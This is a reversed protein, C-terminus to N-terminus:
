PVKRSERRVQHLSLTHPVLRCVPPYFLEFTATGQQFIIVEVDSPWRPSSSSSGAVLVHRCKAKDMMLCNRSMPGQPDLPLYVGGAEFVGLMATLYFVDREGYVAVVDGPVVGHELLQHAIGSACNNLERYSMERSGDVVAITEPSERVQAHFLDIATMSMHQPKATENWLALEREDTCTLRRCHEVRDSEGNAIDSLVQLYYKSLSSIEEDPIGDANVDLSLEIAGTNWSVSFQATLFFYTQDSAQIDSVNIGSERVTQYPHFHVYNFLAEFIPRNSDRVIQAMPYRRHPYVDMEAAFVREVFEGISDGIVSLRLPIANLFLGVSHRGDRTEPRGNSMIGTVVDTEGTLLGVVVIHAALLVSKLPVKRTYALERLRESIDGPIGVNYRIHRPPCSARDAPWRPLRAFPAGSLLSQWYQRDGSSELSERELAVYDRFGHGEEQCPVPFNLVFAAYTSLVSAMVTAVSFGDLFPEVMTFQFSDPTVTHIYFRALPVQDWAPVSSRVDSLWSAFASSKPSLDMGPWPLIKVFTEVSPHVVQVPVSFGEMHFSTRLMACQETVHQIARRMASEDLAAEIRLSTVYAAYDEIHTSHYMLGMQLMTLPYADQTGTPLAAVDRSTIQDFASTSGNMPERSAAEGSFVKSGHPAAAELRQALEAVTKTEFIDLVSVNFGHERAKYSVEIARISDGGVDFFSEDRGFDSKGLVSIWIKRLVRETETWEASVVSVASESKTSLRALGARDVKGNPTRPLANLKVFHRPIMFEPLRERLWTRLDMEYVPADSVQRLPVVFAVLQDDSIVVCADTLDNRARLTAEIDGLEIRQGHVKVQDDFRGLFEIAGDERYRARDGTLYVLEHGLEDFNCEVFREATLEEHGLYGMGVAVGGIALEGVWGVPVLKRDSGVVYAHTNAIPRGIPVPGDEGDKCDWWTVDIAAESPGYLNFLGVAPILEQARNVLERSLTEGSCVIRRLTPIKVSDVTGSYLVARLMSPVLHLTTISERAVVDMLYEPDRQGGSRALVVTAGESLPWFVEWLAVDFGIPTKHLVREGWSLGFKDQMWALRNRFAKHSNIAGKPAGTSGSTYIVYAADEPKCRVVDTLRGAPTSLDELPLSALITQSDGNKLRVRGALDTLVVRPKSDDLIQKIRFDPYDTDIPVVVAGITMAALLATVMDASRRMFVAVIDGHDVGENLLQEALRTSAWLLERYTMTRISVDHGVDDSVIAVHDALKQAIGCIRDVVTAEMEYEKSTDNWVKSLLRREEPPIRPATDLPRRPENAVAEIFTSLGSLLRDVAASDLLDTSYEVAIDLVRDRHKVFLTFDLKAKVEDMSLTRVQLEPPLEVDPTMEYVVLVQFLPNRSVSHEAGSAKVIELFPLRAHDLNDAVAMHCTRLAESFSQGDVLETRLPLPNIFNGVTGMTDHSRNADLFALTGQTVGGCLMLYSKVACLVGVFVSTGARRCADTLAHVTREGVTIYAKAGNHSARSSRVRKLPLPISTEAEALLTRWYAEDVDREHSDLYSNQRLSYDIYSESFTVKPTLKGSRLAGYVKWLRQEILYQSWGDSAIHHITFQLIHRNKGLSWLTVRIPIESELHFPRQAETQMRAMTENERDQLPITSLDIHNLAFRDASVVSQFPVGGSDSVVTRLAANEEVVTMLAKALLSTDLPGSIDLAIPINYLPLNPEATQAFWVQQQQVSLPYTGSDPSLKM